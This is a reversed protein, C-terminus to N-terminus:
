TNLLPWRIFRPSIYATYENLTTIVVYTAYLGLILM